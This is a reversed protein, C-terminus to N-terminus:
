NGTELCQRDKRIEGLTGSFPTRNRMRARLARWALGTAALFFTSLAVLAPVRGEEWFVLVFTLTLLALAMTGLAGLAAACLVAEVLRCQEERVEVAIIEVRNQAIGLLTDLARTVSGWVSSERDNSASMGRTAQAGRARRRAAR